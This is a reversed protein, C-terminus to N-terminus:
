PLQILRLLLTEEKYQRCFIIVDSDSYIRKYSGRRLAPESKATAGTSEYLGFPGSEMNKRGLSLKVANRTLDVMSVLKMAMISALRALMLSFSLYALKLASIDGGATTIFRPTDHSDLWILNSM